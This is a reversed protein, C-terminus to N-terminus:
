SDHCHSCQELQNLTALTIPEVIEGPALDGTATLCARRTVPIAPDGRVGGNEVFGNRAAIVIVRLKLLEHMRPTFNM